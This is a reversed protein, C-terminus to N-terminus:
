LFFISELTIHSERSWTALLPLTSILVQDQIDEFCINFHFSIFPLFPIRHETPVWGEFCGKLVTQFSNIMYQQGKIGMKYTLFSFSVKTTQQFILSGKWQSM